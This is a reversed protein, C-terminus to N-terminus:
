NGVKLLYDSIVVGRSNYMTVFEAKVVIRNEIFAGEPLVVMLQGVGEKTPMAVYMQNNNEDLLQQYYKISRMKKSISVDLLVRLDKM